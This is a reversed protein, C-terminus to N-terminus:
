SGLMDLNGAVPGIAMYVCHVCNMVPYKKTVHSLSTQVICKAVVTAWLHWPLFLIGWPLFLFRVAFGFVERFFCIGVAFGLSNKTARFYKIKGHPIKNKGHPKQNERSTNQKQRSTKPKATLYKAKATLNKTKGHHKRKQRSTKPKATVTTPWWLYSRIISHIAFIRKCFPLFIWLRCAYCRIFFNFRDVLSLSAKTSLIFETIGLLRDNAALEASKNNRTCFSTSSVTVVLPKQARFIILAKRPKFLNIKLHMHIVKM